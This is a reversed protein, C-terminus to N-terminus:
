QAGGGLAAAMEDESSFRLFATLPWDPRTDGAMVLQPSEPHIRYIDLAPTMDRSALNIHCRPDYATVILHSEGTEPDIATDWNTPVRLPYVITM